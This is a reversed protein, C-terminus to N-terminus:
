HTTNQKEKTEQEGSESPWWTIHFHPTHHSMPGQGACIALFAHLHINDFCEAPPSQFWVSIIMFPGSICQRSVILCYSIGQKQNFWHLPGTRPIIIPLIIITRTGWTRTGNSYWHHHYAYWWWESASGGMNKKFFIKKFFNKKLFIKKEIPFHKRSLFKEDRCCICIYVLHGHISAVWLVWNDLLPWKQQVFNPLFKKNSGMEKPFLGM